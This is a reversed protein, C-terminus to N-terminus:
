KVQFVVQNIAKAWHEMFKSVPLQAELGEVADPAAAGV